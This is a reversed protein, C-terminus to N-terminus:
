PAQEGSELPMDGQIDPSIELPVDGTGRRARLREFVTQGGLITEVVEISDITEPRDIPNASLVVLDALKGPEISGKEVEDFSQYAADITIARLAQMPEIRQEAGVFEGTKTLRNVAAWMLRLPEMPTVPTDAHITFRIGKNLASRAPSMRAARLPGMFIDRHRDGWYYTHLSFFSPIVGLTAMADLQDERAMQSHIIIPRVDGSPDAALMAEFGALIDDIAADGNGHVAVQWGAAHFEGILEILAARPMIPRGRWEPQGRPTIYYPESLYGTYGQISGDAIIKVAGIKLRDRDAIEPALKGANLKRALDPSPWVLVRIPLRDQALAAALDGLTREDTLGSQATTVGRSTYELAAHEIAVIREEAGPQPILGMVPGMEAQERLLGTHGLPDIGAQKLAESNAVALHLSTHWIFVPHKTTVADLELRTPHRNETLLTDDYGIGVIWEGPSRAKAKARLTDVLEEMNQIAGMPPSNLDVMNLAIDGSFPFHGHADIFGPTVTRGFLNSVETREGIHRAIEEISGVALIHDGSIAVAEAVANQPNMTLIVGNTLVRDAEAFEFPDEGCGALLFVGLIVRLARM